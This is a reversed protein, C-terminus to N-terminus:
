IEGALIRTAPPRVFRGTGPEALVSTGDFALKGRLWTGSVKFPLEMGEYPSWGVVNHGSAAPDYRYPEPTLVTIDADRGVTLAGKSGEIRFHRAPNEAM